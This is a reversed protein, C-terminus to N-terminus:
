KEYFEPLLQNVLGIPFGVIAYFDGKVEKIFKAAGGQIGYSGSKDMPEGTAVYARVQEERMPYFSVAAQALRTITRDKSLITLGTLVDHTRGSYSLLMQVADEEDVPKGLIQNDLAVVTDCGIVVAEPYQNLIHQAKQRAMEQVYAEPSIGEAVSEDIDAPLVMFDSVLQSLLEKRRPSQSALILM